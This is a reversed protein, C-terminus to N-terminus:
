NCHASHADREQLSKQTKVELCEVGARGRQKASGPKGDGRNNASLPQHVEVWGSVGFQTCVRVSFFFHQRGHKEFVKKFFNCSIQFSGLSIIYSYKSASLPGNVSCLQVSMGYSAKVSLLGAPAYEVGTASPHTSVPSAPSRTM